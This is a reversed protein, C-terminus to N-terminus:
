AAQLFLQLLDCSVRLGPHGRAHLVLGVQGMELASDLTRAGGPGSESMASRVSVREGGLRRLARRSGRGPRCRGHAGKRRGRM